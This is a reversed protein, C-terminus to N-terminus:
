TSREGRLPFDGCLKNTSDFVGAAGVEGRREGRERARVIIYVPSKVFFFRSHVTAKEGM